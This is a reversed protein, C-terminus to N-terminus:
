SDQIFPNALQWNAKALVLIPVFFSLSHSSSFHDTKEQHSLLLVSNPEKLYRHINKKGGKQKVAEEEEGV